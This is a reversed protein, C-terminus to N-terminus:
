RTNPIAYGRDIAVDGFASHGPGWAGVQQSIIHGKALSGFSALGTSEQKRRSEGQKLYLLRNLIEGESPTRLSKSLVPIANLSALQVPAEFQAEAKRIIPSEDDAPLLM